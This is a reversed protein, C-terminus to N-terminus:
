RISILVTLSPPSPLLLSSILIGFIDLSNFWWQQQLNRIQVAAAQFRPEIFSELKQKFTSHFFLLDTNGNETIFLLHHTLREKFLGVFKCCAYMNCVTEHKRMQIEFLFFFSFFVCLTHTMPVYNMRETCFDLLKEIPLWLSRPAPVSFIFCM